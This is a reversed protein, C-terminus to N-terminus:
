IKKGGDESLKKLVTVKLYTKLEGGGWTFEASNFVTGSKSSGRYPEELSM